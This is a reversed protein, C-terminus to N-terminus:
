NWFNELDNIEFNSDPIYINDWYLNGNIKVFVKYYGSTLNELNIALNFSNLDLLEVEANSEILTEENLDSDLVSNFDFNQYIKKADAPIIWIDSINVSSSINLVSSTPNPYAVFQNNRYVNPNGLRLPLSYDSSRLDIGTVLEIDTESSSNSDDDNNCGIFIIITFIILITKLRMMMKSYRIHICLLFLKKTQM